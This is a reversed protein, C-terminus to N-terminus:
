SATTAIVLNFTGTYRNNKFEGLEIMCARNMLRDAANLAAFDRGYAVTTDPFFLQSILVPGNAVQVQTHIHAARRGWKGTYDRPIITDLRWSGDAGTLQHGRLSFGATDYDGNQDCQWFEVLAGALPACATDLVFGKLSIPVGTTAPTILNTRLPSNPKFLPGETLAPTEHGDCAPTLALPKKLSVAPAASASRAAVLGGAALAATTVGLASTRIFARRSPTHQAEPRSDPSDLDDQPM